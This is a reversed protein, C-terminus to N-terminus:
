LRFIARVNIDLTIPNYISYSHIYQQQKQDVIPICVLYKHPSLSAKVEDSDHDGDEGSLYVSLLKLCPIGDLNNTM